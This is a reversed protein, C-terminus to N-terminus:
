KNAHALVIQRAMCDRRRDIRAIEEGAIDGETDGRFSQIINRIADANLLEPPRELLSDTRQAALAVQVLMRGDGVDAREARHCM